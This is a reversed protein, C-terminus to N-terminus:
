LRDGRLQGTTTPTNGDDDIMADACVTDLQIGASSHAGSLDSHTRIDRLRDIVM